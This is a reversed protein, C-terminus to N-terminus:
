LDAVHRHSPFYLKRQSEEVLMLCRNRCCVCLVLISPRSGISLGDIMAALFNELKKKAVSIWTKHCVIVSITGLIYASYKSFISTYKLM